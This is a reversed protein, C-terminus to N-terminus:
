TTKRKPKLFYVPKKLFYADIATSCGRHILGKSSIIWPVIDYKYIVKVNQFKEFIKWDEHMQDAPHPRIIIKFKPNKKLFEFLKFKLFKFDDISKQFTSYDNKNIKSIKM